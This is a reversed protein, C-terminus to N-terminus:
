KSVIIIDKTVEPIPEHFGTPYDRMAEFFMTADYRFNEGHSTGPDNTIFENSDADYGHIVLMHRSPGPSRYYPNHVLQGNFAAVILHGSKLENIMDDLTVNKKVAINQYKFYDEFLWEATDDISTDRFEGFKNLTFDAAAIIENLAEEPSLSQGRAWRVAMLVSTEECGEGQRQDSWDGLPAQATFPVGEIYVSKINMSIIKKPQILEGRSILSLDSNTIGLGLHRMINFADDPRGLYYKRRDRPYVYYAEGNQEVDLLITGALRLPFVETNEIYEHKAGLALGTMIGFADDPRGLYYAKGDKPYIYYAEGHEETQLVIFGAPWNAADVNIPVLFSLAIVATLIIQLYSKM